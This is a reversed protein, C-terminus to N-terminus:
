VAHLFCRSRIGSLSAPPLAQPFTYATSHFLFESYQSYLALLLSIVPLSSNYRNSKPIRNRKSHLLEALGFKDPLDHKCSDTPRTFPQPLALDHAIRKRWCARFCSTRSQSHRPRVTVSYIYIRFFTKM